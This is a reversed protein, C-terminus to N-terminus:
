FAITRGLTDQTPLMDWTSGSYDIYNGNRTTIRAGTGQSGWLKTGDSMRISIGDTTSLRMRTDDVSSTPYIWIPGNNFVETAIWDDYVAQFDCWEWYQSAYDGGTINVSYFHSAGTGDRWEYYVTYAGSWYEGPSCGTEEYSHIFVGEGLPNTLRWGGAYYSNSYGPEQVEKWGQSNYVLHLGTSLDRGPLTLLNLNVMLNGNYLNVSDTESDFYSGYPVRGAQNPSQALLAQSLLLWFVSAHLAMRKM